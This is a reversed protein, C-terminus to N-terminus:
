FDVCITKGEQVEAETVALETSIDWIITENEPHGASLKYHSALVESNMDTSYPVIFTYTGNSITRQSYVFDRGQNTTINTQIKIVSADPAQGEIRAGKVYEFVKVFSVPSFFQPTWEVFDTNEQVQFGQHLEQTKEKIETYGGFYCGWEQLDRTTDQLVVYPILYTPSEHVLRYHHLPETHFQKISLSYPLGFNYDEASEVERGDFMHLRTIMTNFYKEYLVFSTGTRYDEYHGETDDAWFLISWYKNGYSAMADAMMFDTVVYKVDLADAVENAETENTATFFVCAGPSNNQYPGGIGQQFNNAVPIRHAIRTIWHGYDWWSMVSYASEPYDYAEGPPPPMMCRTTTWV